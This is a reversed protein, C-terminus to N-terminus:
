SFIFIYIRCKIYLLRVMRHYNMKMRLLKIFYISHINYKSNTPSLWVRNRPNPLNRNVNALTKLYYNRFSLIQLKQRKEFYVSIYTTDFYDNRKLLIRAHIWGQIVDCNQVSCAVTQGLNNYEQNSMVFECETACRTVIQQIHTVFNTLFTLTRNYSFLHWFTTFLSLIIDFFTIVNIKRKKKKKQLSCIAYKDM